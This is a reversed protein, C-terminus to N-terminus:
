ERKGPLDASKMQEHKWTDVLKQQTGAMDLLMEMNGELADYKKLFGVARDTDGEYIDILRKAQEVTAFGIHVAYALDCLFGNCGAPRDRRLLKCGQSLLYPCGGDHDPFKKQLSVITYWAEKCCYGCMIPCPLDVADQDIVTFNSHRLIDAVFRRKGPEKLADPLLNNLTECVKCFQSPSHKTLQTGCKKCRVM